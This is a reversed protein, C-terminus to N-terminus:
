WFYTIKLSVSVANADAPAFKKTQKLIFVQKKQNIYESKLVSLMLNDIKCQM